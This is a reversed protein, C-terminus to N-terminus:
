LQQRVTATSEISNGQMELIEQHIPIDEKICHMFTQHCFSKKMQSIIHMLVQINLPSMDCSTVELKFVDVFSTLLGGKSPQGTSRIICLDSSPLPQLPVFESLM